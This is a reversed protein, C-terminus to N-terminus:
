LLIRLVNLIVLLLHGVEYDPKTFYDLTLIHDLFTSFESPLHKLMLRHDYTEKLNGVQEQSCHPVFLLKFASTCFYMVTYFIFRSYVFLTMSVCVKDKIKRWPLQGVMFEVLMYFLSWLDDHRGM